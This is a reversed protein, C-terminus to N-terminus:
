RLRFLRRTNETATRAISELSEHRASAVARAVHPLHLVFVFFIILV